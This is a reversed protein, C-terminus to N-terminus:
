LSDALTPYCAAEWLKLATGALVYRLELQIKDHSITNATSLTVTLYGYDALLRAKGTLAAFKGNEVGTLIVPTQEWFHSRFESAGLEKWNVRDINCDNSALHAHSVTSNWGDGKLVHTQEALILHATCISFLLYYRNM